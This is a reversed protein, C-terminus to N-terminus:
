FPMEEKSVNEFRAYQSIFTSDVSGIPGNRQKAIILEAKGEDDDEKSYVWPRYLFIVIDADQEIAGSERLDSLIPKKDNRQEVARSLQSLAIIPINLEKALAKLNRSIESIEQQRNETRSPGQMLQLYDLVILDIDKESKLRRAKARLERITIAPTDDIYIPATQLDGTAMSLNKWLKQPLKGTRVYHMNVRAEACLLRMALQESGMELSFMGIGAGGEIAANRMMSLALATKGMSPRGAVIILDGKQFGSTKDDLDLLGSPVGTVASGKKRKEELEDLADVMIPNIQKFGTKLSNQTIKFISSEVNDLIDSVNDKDDYSIKAIKHSLNIM